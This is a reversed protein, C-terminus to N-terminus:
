HYHDLLLVAIGLPKCSAEMYQISPLFGESTRHPFSPRSAKMKSFTGFFKPKKTPEVESVKSTLIETIERPSRVLKYRTSIFILDGARQEHRRGHLLNVAESARPAPNRLATRSLLYPDCATLPKSFTVCFSYTRGRATCTGSYGGCRWYLELINCSSDSTPSLFVAAQFM